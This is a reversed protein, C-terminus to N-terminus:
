GSENVWLDVAEKIKANQDLFTQLTEQEYPPPLNCPPQKAPEHVMGEIKFAMERGVPSCAFKESCLEVAGEPVTPKYKLLKAYESFLHFMYDYVYKM